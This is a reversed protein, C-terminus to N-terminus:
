PSVLVNTGARITVFARRRPQATWRTIPNLTAVQRSQWKPFGSLANQFSRVSSFALGSRPKRVTSPVFKCHLKIAEIKKGSKMLEMIREDVGLNPDIRLQQLILDLKRELRASSTIGKASASSNAAFLPAV